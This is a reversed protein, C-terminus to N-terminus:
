AGQGAKMMDYMMGSRAEARALMAEMDQAAKRDAKTTLPLVEVGEALRGSQGIAGFVSYSWGTYRGGGNDELLVIPAPYLKPEQTTDDEYHFHVGDKHHVIKQPYEKRPEQKVKVWNV